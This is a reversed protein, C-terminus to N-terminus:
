FCYELIKYTACFSLPISFNDDIHISKSVLEVVASTILAICLFLADFETVNNMYKMIFYLVLEGILIFSIFGELTKKGCMKLRGFNKGILASSMDCFVFIIMAIVVLYKDYSALILTYGILLWTLGCLNHNVAEDKRLLKILLRGIVPIKCLFHFFNHYDFVVALLTTICSIMLLLRNDCYITLIPFLLGLLHFFKRKIEFIRQERKVSPLYSKIRSLLSQYVKM